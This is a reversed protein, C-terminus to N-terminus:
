GRGRRGRAGTASSAGAAPTEVFWNGRSLATRAADSLTGFVDANVGQFVNRFFEPESPEQILLARNSAGNRAFSSHAIRSSTGSRIAVAVGRNDHLDCGLLSVRSQESIDIGATIAGTVEVDVISLDSHGVRVGTRLPATNEGAIRFGVLEAGTVGEATIAALDVADPPLRITAGRPVRSILRVGSVLSLVGDYAGPEVIVTTGAEARGLAAAISEGPHVVIM